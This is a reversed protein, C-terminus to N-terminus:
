KLGSIIAGVRQWDRRIEQWAQRVEPSPQVQAM